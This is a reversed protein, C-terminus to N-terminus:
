DSIPWFPKDAAAVQAHFTLWPRYFYTIFLAAFFSLIKKSTGARKDQLSPFDLTPFKVIVFM